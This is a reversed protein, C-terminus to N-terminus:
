KKAVIGSHCAECMTQGQIQNLRREVEMATPTKANNSQQEDAFKLLDKMLQLQQALQKRLTPDSFWYGTGDAEAQAVRNRLTNLEARRLDVQELPTVRIEARRWMRSGNYGNWVDSVGPTPRSSLAPVNSTQQSSLGFALIAVLCLAFLFAPLRMSVGKQQKSIEARNKFEMACASLAYRVVRQSLKRTHDVLSLVRRDRGATVRTM